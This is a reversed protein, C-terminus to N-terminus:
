YECVAENINLNKCVLSVCAGYCWGSGSGAEAKITAIAKDLGFLTIICTNSSDYDAEDDDPNKVADIKTIVPNTESNKDYLLTNTVKAYSCVCGGQNLVFDLTFTKDDKEFLMHKDDLSVLKSGIINDLM